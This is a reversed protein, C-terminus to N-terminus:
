IELLRIFKIWIFLYFFYTNIKKELKEKKKKKQNRLGGAKELGYDKTTWKIDKCPKMRKLSFWLFHHYQSNENIDIEYFYELFSINLASPYQLVQIANTSKYILLVAVAMGLTFNIAVGNLALVTIVLLVLEVLDVITVTISSGAHETMPETVIAKLVNKVTQIM